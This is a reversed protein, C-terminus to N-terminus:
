TTSDAKGLGPVDEDLKGDLTTFDATIKNEAEGSKYDTAANRLATGVEWCANEINTLATDLSNGRDKVTTQLTVADPFDASGATVKLDKLDNNTRVTNIDNYWGMFKDGLAKIKADDVGTTAVTM